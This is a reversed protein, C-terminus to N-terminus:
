REVGAGSQKPHILHRCPMIFSFDYTLVQGCCLLSQPRVAFFQDVTLDASVRYLPVKSMLAMPSILLAWLLPGMWVRYPNKTSELERPRSCLDSCVSRAVHLDYLNINGCRVDEQVAALLGDLADASM